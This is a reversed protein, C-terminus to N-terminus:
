PRHLVHLKAECSTLYQLQQQQLVRWLYYMYGDELPHGVVEYLEHMACVSYYLLTAADYGRRRVYTVTEEGYQLDLHFQFM